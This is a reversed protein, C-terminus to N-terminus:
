NYEIVSQNNSFDWLTRIKLDLLALQYSILTAVENLQERSLQNQYFSIDKSSLDGNRYRELNIEYTLRANKINKEAIDIQTRENLLNRYSQRIQLQIQKKEESASLRSSKLQLESAKIRHRKQGWDFVPINLTIAVSQNKNTSSFVEGFEKDTGTLGYSLDISAKFENQSGARVLNNISEQIQIDKQRLEMRHTLGHEIARNYDVEIINKKIDSVVSLEEALPIGLLIKFNDLSNEYQMKSNDLSAINNALTLEAQYLEESASIGAEVKSVIIDFSEQSNNKEEESIKVSMQQHYLNLFDRTVQSEIQLKQLAYNLRANELSLELEQLTMMSRNYTFLPQSFRLTLSNYYSSENLSNPLSSSADRWILQETLSLTGDTWKIPQMISFQTSSRTQEQTIYDSFRDDFVEDKTLSYPTITLNFQSKFGAKQAELNRESIELNYGANIMTPSTAFAIELSQELTLPEAHIISTFLTILTILLIVRFAKNHKIM